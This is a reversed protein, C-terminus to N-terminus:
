MGWKWNSKEKKRNYAKKSKVVQERKKGFGGLQSIREKREIAQAQKVQTLNAM